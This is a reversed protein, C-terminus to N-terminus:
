KIDSFFKLGVGGLLTAMISITLGMWHADIFVIVEAGTHLLQLIRIAAFILLLIIAFFQFARSYALSLLQQEREDFYKHNIVMLCIIEVVGIWLAMDKVSENFQVGIGFLGAWLM